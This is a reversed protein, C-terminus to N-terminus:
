LRKMPRPAVGQCNRYREDWAPDALAAYERDFHELGEHYAPDLLAARADDDTPRAHHDAMIKMFDRHHDRILCPAIWNGCRGNGCENAERYGCERQWKRIDAFFPDAV